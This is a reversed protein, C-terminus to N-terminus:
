WRIVRRHFLGPQGQGHTGGHHHQVVLRHPEAGIQRNPQAILVDANEAWRGGQQTGQAQAVRASKQGLEFQQVDAAFRQIVIHGVEPCWPPAHDVTIAGGFARHGGRAGLDHSACLDRDAARHRAQLGPHEVGIARLQGIARRTFQTKPTHTQGLAVVLPRFQCCFFERLVRAQAANVASAIQSLALGAAVQDKQAADVRLDLQAAVPDLQFGDFRRQGQAGAHGLRRHAHLVAATFLLERGKHHWEVRLRWGVKLCQAPLQGQTQRAVHHRTSEGEQGRQRAAHTALELAIGQRCIRWRQGAGRLTTDRSRGLNM